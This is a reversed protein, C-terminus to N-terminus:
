TPVPRGPGASALGPLFHPHTGLVDSRCRGARDLVQGAPCPRAAAPLVDFRCQSDRDLVQGAPCAARSCFGARDLVQGAPCSPRVNQERHCRGDRELEQGAPCPSGAQAPTAITIALGFLGPFGLGASGIAGFTVFMSGAAAAQVLGRAFGQAASKATRGINSKM